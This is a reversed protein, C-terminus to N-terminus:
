AARKDFPCVMLAEFLIINNNNATERGKNKTERETFPARSSVRSLGQELIITGWAMRVSIIDQVSLLRQM